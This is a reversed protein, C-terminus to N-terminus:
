QTIRQRYLNKFNKICKINCNLLWIKKLTFRFFINFTSISNCKIFYFNEYIIGVFIIIYLSYFLINFYSVIDSFFLNSLLNTINEKLLIMMLFILISLVIYQYTLLFLNKNSINKDDSWFGQRSLFVLLLEKFVIGLNNGM